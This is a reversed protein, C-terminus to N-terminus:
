SEFAVMLQGFDKLFEKSVGQPYKLQIYLHCDLKKSYPASMLITFYRTDFTNPLVLPGGYKGQRLEIDGSIGGPQPGSEESADQWENGVRNLGHIMFKRTHFEFHITDDKLTVKAKPYHKEVLNRVEALLPNFDQNPAREVRAYRYIRSASGPATIMEAPSKDPDLGSALYLDGREVKYRLSQTTGKGDGEAIVLELVLKEPNIKWNGKRVSKEQYDSVEFEGKRFTFYPETNTFLANQVGNFAMGVKQWTGELLKSPPDGAQASDLEFVLAAGVASLLGIAGRRTLPSM